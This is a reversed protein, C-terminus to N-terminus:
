EVVTSRRIWARSGAFSGAAESLHQQLAEKRSAVVIVEHHGSVLVEPVAIGRAGGCARTYHPYELLGETFSEEAASTADGLVGPVLCAAADIMVLAALGGTLVYDGVSIQEPHCRWMHSM